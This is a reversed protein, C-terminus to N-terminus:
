KCIRNRPIVGEVLQEANNEGKANFAFKASELVVKKEHIKALAEFIHENESIARNECVIRCKGNVCESIPTLKFHTRKKAGSNFTVLGELFISDKSMSGDVTKYSAVNSYVKKLLSETVEDFSEEDIEDVDVEDFDEDEGEAEKDEIEDIDKESVEEIMEDDCCEKEESKVHIFEDDTEIDINNLGEDMKILEKYEKSGSKTYKATLKKAYEEKVRPKVEGNRDVFKMDFLHIDKLEPNLEEATKKVLMEPILDTRSTLEKEQYKRKDAPRGDVDVYWDYVGKRGEVPTAVIKGGRIKGDLTDWAIFPQIRVQPKKDFLGEEIEYDDHDATHGIVEWNGYVDEVVSYGAQKIADMTTKSIKGYTKMDYDVWTQYKDIEPEVGEKLKSCGEMKEKKEIDVTVEELPAVKGVIKFGDSTQCQPCPEGINAFDEEIEVRDKKKFMLLKCVPCELIFDGFHSEEAEEETKAEVDVVEVDGDMIDGDLFNKLKDLGEKNMNFADEHMTNLASLSELIVSTNM